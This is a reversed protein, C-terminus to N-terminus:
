RATKPEKALHTTSISSGARIGSITERANWTAICPRGPGTTIASGSSMSTSRATTASSIAQETGAIRARRLFVEIHRAEDALQKTANSLDEGRQAKGLAEEALEKVKDHKADLDSKIEDHRADLAARLESQRADLSSKVESFRADLVGKVEGALQEATKQDSM